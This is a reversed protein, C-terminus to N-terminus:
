NHRGTLHSAANHKNSNTAPQMNDEPAMVQIGLCHWSQKWEPAAYYNKKEGGAGRERQQQSASGCIIEGPSSLACDGNSYDGWQWGCPVVVSQERGALLGRNEFGPYHGTQQQQQHHHSPLATSRLSVREASKSHCCCSYYFCSTYASKDTTHKHRSCLDWKHLNLFM